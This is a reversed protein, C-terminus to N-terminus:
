FICAPSPVGPRRNEIQPQRNIRERAIFNSKAPLQNSVLIDERCILM